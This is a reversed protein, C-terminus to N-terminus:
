REHNLRIYNEKDKYIILYQNDGEYFTIDKLIIFLSRDIAAQATSSSKMNMHLQRKVPDVNWTGSFTTGPALIGTITNGTDFHICYASSGYPKGNKDHYFESVVSNMAEGNIGGGVIYWTKSFFMEDVNDELTCGTLLLSLLLTTLISLKKRM